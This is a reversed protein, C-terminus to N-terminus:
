RVWLNSFARWLCVLLKVIRVWDMCNLFLYIPASWRWTPVLLEKFVIFQHFIFSILSIQINVHLFLFWCFYNMICEVWLCGSFDWCNANSSVHWGECALIFILCALWYYLLRLRFDQDLSIFEMFISILHRKLVRFDCTWFIEALPMGRLKDICSILM